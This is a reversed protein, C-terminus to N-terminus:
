SITEAAKASFREKFKEDTLSLITGTRSFPNLLSSLLESAILKLIINQPVGYAKL